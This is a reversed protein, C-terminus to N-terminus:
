PSTLWFVEKNSQMRQSLIAREPNIGQEAGTKTRSPLNEIGTILVSLLDSFLFGVTFYSGVYLTAGVIDLQIFSLFPMRM